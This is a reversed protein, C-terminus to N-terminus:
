RSAGAVHRRWLYSAFSACAGLMFVAEDQGVQAETRDLRSHRIGQEDSTYGYLESFAKKLAPHLRGRKKLSDLAPGLTNSAAPDLQRAVSEVAHISERVAGAWDGSNISGSAERLHAASADLGAKRLERLSEVVATGEEPTVAPIVTPPRGLDITYALRCEAFTAKMQKIFARPCEPHRLVFQVLDFVRNFSPKEISGRLDSCVYRFSSEWEDLPRQDFDTHKARAIERWVGAVWPGGLISFGDQKTNHRSDTSRAGELHVFFLNWIRTRAPAPLKGLGIPGPVTDIGQSQSFSLERPDRGAQTRRPDGPRVPSGTTGAVGEARERARQAARRMATEAGAMDPDRGPQLPNRNHRISM